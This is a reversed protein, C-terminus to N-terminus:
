PALKIRQWAKKATEFDEETITDCSYRAQVYINTIVQMEEYRHPLQRYLVKLYEFPTQSPARPLAQSATWKLFSRYLHRISELSEDGSPPRFRIGRGLRLVSLLFDRLRKRIAKLSNLLGKLLSLPIQTTEIEMGQASRGQRRARIRRVTLLILRLVIIFVVIIVLWFVVPNTEHPAGEPPQTLSPIEGKEQAVRCSCSFNFPLPQGGTRPPKYSGFLDSVWHGAISLGQVIARAVDPSLVLIIFTAPLLLGVSGLIMHKARPAQLVGITGSRSIERRALALTIVALTFFFVIPLFTRNVAAGLVLLILMGVQFRLCIHQYNPEELVLTSGLWWSLGCFGVQLVVGGAPYGTTLVDRLALGTVFSVLVIGAGAAFVPSLRSGDSPRITILRFALSFPYLLLILTFSINALGLHDRVLALGLYLCCMEMGMAAVYGTQPLLKPKNV